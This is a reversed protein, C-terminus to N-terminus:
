CDRCSISKLEVCGNKSHTEIVVIHVDKGEQKACDTTKIIGQIQDDSLQKLPLVIDSFQEDLCIINEADISKFLYEKKILTTAVDDANKRKIKTLLIGNVNVSYEIRSLRQFPISGKQTKWQKLENLAHEINTVNGGHMQKALPTLSLMAVGGGMAGTFMGGFILGNEVLPDFLRRLVKKDNDDKDYKSQTAGPDIRERCSMYDLFLKGLLCYNNFELAKIIEDHIKYSQLISKFRIPDRSLYALFRMNLGRHLGLGSARAIGSNVLIMNQGLEKVNFRDKNLFSIKPSVFGTSKNYHLVKIGNPLLGDVDQRGSKLGLRNELLLAMSGGM